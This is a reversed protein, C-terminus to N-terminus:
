TWSRAYRSSERACSSRPRVHTQPCSHQACTAGPTRTGCRRIDHPHASASKTRLGAVLATKSPARPHRLVNNRASDTRIATAERHPDQRFWKKEPMWPAYPPSKACTCCRKVNRLSSGHHNHSARSAATHRLLTDREVLAITRGVNTHHIPIRLESALEARLPLAVAKAFQEVPLGNCQLVDDKIATASLRHVCPIRLHCASSTRTQLQQHPGLATTKKSNPTSGLVMLKFNALRQRFYLARSALSLACRPGVLGGHHHRTLREQFAQVTEVNTTVLIPGDQLRHSWARM